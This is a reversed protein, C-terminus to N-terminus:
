EKDEKFIPEYSYEPNLVEEKTTKIYGPQVDPWTSIDKMSMIKAQLQQKRLVELYFEEQSKIAVAEEARLRIRREMSTELLEEFVYLELHLAYEARAGSPYVRYENDGNPHRKIGIITWNQDTSFFGLPTTGIAQTKAYVQDLYKFKM